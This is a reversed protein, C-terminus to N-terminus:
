VGMMGATSAGDINYAAGSIFAAEDSGLYVVLGAIEDVSAMRKLPAMNEFQARAAKTNPAGDIIATIMETEVVGPHISNVRTKMGASACHKAASKMLAIHAGKATSYAVYNALPLHATMSSNLIISGTAGDPNEKMLNVAM